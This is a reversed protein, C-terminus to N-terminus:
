GLYIKQVKFKLPQYWNFFFVRYYFRYNRDDKSPGATGWGVIEGATLSCLKSFIRSGISADSVLGLKKKGLININAWGAGRAPFAKSFQRCTSSM